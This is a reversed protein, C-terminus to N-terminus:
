ISVLVVLSIFLQVNIFDYWPLLTRLKQNTSLFCSNRQKKKTSVIVNLLIHVLFVDFSSNTNRKKEKM